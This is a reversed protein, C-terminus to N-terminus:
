TQQYTDRLLSKLYDLNTKASAMVQPVAARSLAIGEHDTVGPITFEQQLSIPGHYNSQALIELFERWPTIGQGMPCPEAHWSHPGRPQWTFDKAGVMKLRPLVLNTAVKWGNEGLDVSAHGLDFYFGCWRPDLPEIVPAIDWLAAGIYDTHNHYGLQLQYKQALEVLSLFKRGAQNREDIVNVFKYHYYGPKIYPIGLKSATEFIPKATPDDASVLATSIMPVEMGAARIAAVAKPLDIAAREPLVHGEPRVTLDIGGFGAQKASQALERWSLQPVPKSFLCLTGRFPARPAAEAPTVPWASLGAASAMATASSAQLFERRSFTKSM